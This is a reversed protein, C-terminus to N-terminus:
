KVKPRKADRSEPALSVPSTPGDNYALGSEFKTDDGLALDWMTNPDSSSSPFYRLSDLDKRRAEDVRQALLEEQPTHRLNDM